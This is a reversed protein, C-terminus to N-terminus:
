QDIHPPPPKMTFQQEGFLRNMYYERRRRKLDERMERMERMERRKRQVEKQMEPIEIYDETELSQGVQASSPTMPSQNVNGNADVPELDLVMEDGDDQSNCVSQRLRSRGSARADDAIEDDVDPGDGLAHINCADVIGMVTGFRRDLKLLEKALEGKMVHTPQLDFAWKPIVPPLNETLSMKKQINTLFWLEEHQDEAELSLEVVLDDAIDGWYVSKHLHKESLKSPDLEWNIAALGGALFSLAALIWLFIEAVLSDGESAAVGILGTGVGGMVLASPASLYQSMKLYHQSVIFHLYKMTTARRTWDLATNRTKTHWVMANVTGDVDNNPTHDICSTM